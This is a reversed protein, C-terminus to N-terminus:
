RNKSGVVSMDRTNVHHDNDVDNLFILLDLLPRLFRKTRETVCRYPGDGDYYVDGLTIWLRPMGPRQIIFLRTGMGGMYKLTARDNLKRAFLVMKERQVATAIGGAHDKARKMLTDIKQTASRMSRDDRMCTGTM